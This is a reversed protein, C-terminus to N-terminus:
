SLFDLVAILNGEVWDYEVRLDLVLCVWSGCVVLFLLLMVFKHYLWGCSCGFLVVFVVWYGFGVWVVILFLLLASCSGVVVVLSFNSRWGFDCFKKTLTL